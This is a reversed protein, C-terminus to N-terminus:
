GERKFYGAAFAAITAIAAAVEQPMDLGFQGAVYLVIVTLAGAIGAAAVKPRPTKDTDM